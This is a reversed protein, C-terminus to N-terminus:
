SIYHYLHCLKTSKLPDFNPPTKSFKRESGLKPTFFAFVKKPSSHFQFAATVFMGLWRFFM